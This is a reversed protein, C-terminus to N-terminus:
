GQGFSFGSGPDGGTARIRLSERLFLDFHRRCVRLDFAARYDVKEHNRNLLVSSIHM